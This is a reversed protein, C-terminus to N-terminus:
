ADVLDAVRQQDGVGGLRHGALRQKDLQDLLAPDDVVLREVLLGVTGVAGPTAIEAPFQRWPELFVEVAEPRHTAALDALSAGAQPLRSCGRFYVIFSSRHIIFWSFLAWVATKREDNM